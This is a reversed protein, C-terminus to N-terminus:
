SLPVINAAQEGKPGQTVNFQVRANEALTKYGEGQIERFHAFLDKGGNDPSIFGYGKSENFWKVIGTQPTTMDINRIFSQRAAVRRATCVCLLADIPIRCRCGAPPLPFLSRPHVTKPDDLGPMIGQFRNTRRVHGLAGGAKGATAVFVDEAVGAGCGSRRGSM